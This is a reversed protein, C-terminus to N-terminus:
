NQTVTGNANITFTCSANIGNSSYQGPPLAALFGGNASYVGYVVGDILLGYEPFSSPYTPVFGQTCFQEPTIKTGAAGDHGNAGDTITASTGDTCSITAGDDNQTVTCNSGSAGNSGASGAAGTAGTQGASGQSGVVGAVGAAGDKGDSGDKGAAGQAGTAGDKGDRDIGCGTIALLLSITFLLVVTDYKNLTKLM